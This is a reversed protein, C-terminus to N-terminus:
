LPMFDKAFSEESMGVYSYFHPFFWNLDKMVTRYEEETKFQNPLINFVLEQLFGTDGNIVRSMLLIKPNEVGKELLYKKIHKRAQTPLIFESPQGVMVEEKETIVEDEAQKSFPTYGETYFTKNLHLNLIDGYSLVWDPEGDSSFIVVGYGLELLFDDKMKDIVYCQFSQNPKPLNLVFYPFGEPGTIVQPDGCEFSAFELNNIFKRQWIGDRYDASVKVLDYLENTKELDGLYPAHGQSIEAVAQSEKKKFLNFISM